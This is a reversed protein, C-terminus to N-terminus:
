AKAEGNRQWVEQTAEARAKAGLMLEEDNLPMPPADTDVAFAIIEAEGWGSDIEAIRNLSLRLAEIKAARTSGLVIKMSFIFYSAPVIFSSAILHELRASDM